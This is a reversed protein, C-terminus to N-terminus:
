GKAREAGRKPYDGGPPADTQGGLRLDVPTMFEVRTVNGGADFELAKVMPCEVFEVHPGGCRLCTAAPAGDHPPKGEPM